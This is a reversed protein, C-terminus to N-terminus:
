IKNELPTDEEMLVTGAALGAVMQLKDGVVCHPKDVGAAVGIRDAAPVLTGELGIHPEVGLQKDWSFHGDVEEVELLFYDCLFHNRCPITLM